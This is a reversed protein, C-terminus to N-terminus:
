VLKLSRPIMYISDFRLLYTRIAKVTIQTSKIPRVDIWSSHSVGKLVPTPYKRMGTCDPTM